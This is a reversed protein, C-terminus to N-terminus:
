RRSIYVGALIVILCAGQLLTVAEGALWGWFMAVLPIGYTVMSSFIPGAKKLLMYFLITAIATGTLGLFTSCGVSWLVHTSRFDLHFFGTFSLVLFSPIILASLAISAITLSQIQLLSKNVMNVNLGYSLTALLVLLSYSVHALSINANSIFLLILGLFGIIVGAVQNRTGPQRFAVTGIIVVCIPTLANLIGALASDIRTEAICFLFAPFFSGLLGSLIVRGLKQPPVTKFRKIAIPLLILGASLMRLSAVHFPTLQQMGEKMLIFSTGWIFSLAIFLLWNLFRNSYDM